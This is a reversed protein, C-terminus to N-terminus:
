LINQNHSKSEYADLSKVIEKDKRVRKRRKSNDKDHLKRQRSARKKKEKESM